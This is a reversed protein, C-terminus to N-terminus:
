RSDSPVQVSSTIESYRYVWNTLFGRVSIYEVPEGVLKAYYVDRQCKLRLSEGSRTQTLIEWSAPETESTLRSTRRGDQDLETVKTLHIREPVYYKNLIMGSCVVERGASYDFLIFLAPILLLCAFNLVKHGTINKLFATPSLTTSQASLM